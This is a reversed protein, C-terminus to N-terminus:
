EFVAMVSIAVHGSSCNKNLHATCIVDHVNPLSFKVLGLANNEGPRQRIRFEGGPMSVFEYNHKKLYNPDRRMAPAIENRQIGAPVNWFPRFIVASIQNQFVPTHRRYARGVIVSMALSVHLDNNYARLRFEPINVVIPPQSFSRQIWRWRELTLSLQTIRDAIPIALERYTELSLTGDPPLGHRAQYSETARILTEDYRASPTTSSSDHLDGTRALLVTMAAIGAWRDQPKLPKKLPPLVIQPERALVILRSFAEKTRLYGPATPELSDFARALNGDQVAHWLFEATNFDSCPVPLDAHIERPDVRGCRLDRALRMTAITLTIEWREFEKLSSPQVTRTSPTVPIPYDGPNLGRTATSQLVEIAAASVPTVGEDATWALAYGCPEYFEHVLKADEAALSNQLQEIRSRLAQTEASESESRDIPCYSAPAAYACVASVSLILLCLATKTSRTCPTTATRGSTMVM